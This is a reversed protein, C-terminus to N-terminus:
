LNGIVGSVASTLRANGGGDAAAVPGLVIAQGCWTNCVLGIRKPVSGNCANATTTGSIGSHAGLCSFGASNIACLLMRGNKLSGFNLGGQTQTIPFGSPPAVKATGFYIIWSGAGKTRTLGLTVAATYTAGVNCVSSTLTDRNPFTTSNYTVVSGTLDTVEEVHMSMSTFSGSTTGFTFTARLYGPPCYEDIADTMGQGDVQLIASSCSRTCSLFPWTAALTAGIPNITGTGNDLFKWSYGIPGDAFCQLTGFIIRIFICSFGGFFSSSASNGPLGTLTFAAVTTTPAGGFLTYGEYFGLKVSGGPGGSGPALAASCYAFVVSNMMDSNNVVGTTAGAGTGKVGADFWECFGGGTDVGVFGGLDNNAFDVITTATRNNVAPGRTITGTALDLTASKLPKNYRAFVKGAQSQASSTAGVLALAAGALMLSKKPVMM